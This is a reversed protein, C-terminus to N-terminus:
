IKFKFVSYDGLPFATLAAGSVFLIRSCCEMSGGWFCRRRSSRRLNMKVMGPCGNDGAVRCCITSGDYSWRECILTQYRNDTGL